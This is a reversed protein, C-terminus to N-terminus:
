HQNIEMVLTYVYDSGKEPQVGNSLYTPTHGDPGFLLQPRERQAVLDVTGDDYLVDLTYAAEKGDYWHILDPSYTHGGCGVTSNGESYAHYLIHWAGGDQESDKWLFPDEGTYPHATSQDTEITGPAALISWESDLRDTQAIGLRMPCPHQLFPDCAKMVMLAPGEDGRQQLAFSLVCSPCLTLTM